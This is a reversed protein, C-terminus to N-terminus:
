YTTRESAMADNSLTHSGNKLTPNFGATRNGWSANNNNYQTCAADSYCGITVNGILKPGGIVNFPCVLTAGLGSEIVEVSAWTQLPLTIYFIVHAVYLGFHRRTKLKFIGIKQINKIASKLGKTINALSKSPM